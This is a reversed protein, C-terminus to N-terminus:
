FLLLKIWTILLKNIKSNENTLFIPNRLLLIITQLKM